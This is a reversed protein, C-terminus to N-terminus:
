FLHGMRVRKTELYTHCAGGVEAAVLPVRETVAIGAQIVSEVKDPNNSLLRCRSIGLQVLLTTAPSYDRADVPLGLALNADVTDLGLSQLAYARIKNEIGIGRGEQRLYVLVGCGHRSIMELSTHLQNGCDCKRSGLVEGTLCESHIRVLPIEADCRGLGRTLAIHTDESQGDHFSMLSFNGFATPLECTATIVVERM